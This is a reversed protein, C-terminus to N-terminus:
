QIFSPKKIQNLSREQAGSRYIKLSKIIDLETGVFFIFCSNGGFQHSSNFKM